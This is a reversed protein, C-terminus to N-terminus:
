PVPMMGALRARHSTPTSIQVQRRAGRADRFSATSDFPTPRTRRSRVRCPHGPTRPPQRATGRRGRPPSCGGARSRRCGPQGVRPSRRISRRDRMPVPPSSSRPRRSRSSPTDRRGRTGPHDLTQQPPRSPCRRSRGRPRHTERVESPRRRTRRARREPQRRRERHRAAVSRDIPARARPNRRRRAHQARGRGCIALRQDAEPDAEDALCATALDPRLVHRDSDVSPKRKRLWLRVDPVVLAHHGHGRGAPARGVADADSADVGRRLEAVTSIRTRADGRQTAPQEFDPRLNQKRNM